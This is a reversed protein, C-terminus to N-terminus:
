IASRVFIDGHSDSTRMSELVGKLAERPVWDNLEFRIPDALTFNYVSGSGFVPSNVCRIAADRCLANFEFSLLAPQQSLGELVSEEFGEVDIKIYEPLRYHKVLTDLTIVPVTVQKSWLREYEKHENQLVGIWEKSLSSIDDRKDSLHLVALDNKAGVAAQIVEVGSAAYAIQIHRVCDMNPEVAVVKCGISAFVEALAGVNAGIDFVLAKPPLIRRFFDAMAHHLATRRRGRTVRYVSRAIRHTGTVWLAEELKRRSSTM